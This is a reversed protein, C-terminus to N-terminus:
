NKFVGMKYLNLHNDGYICALWNIVTKNFVKDENENM